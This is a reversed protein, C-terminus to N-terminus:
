ACEVLIRDAFTAGVNAIEPTEERGLKALAEILGADEPDAEFPIVNASCTSTGIIVPADTVTFAFFYTSEYFALEFSSQSVDFTKALRRVFTVELRQDVVKADFNTPWDLAIAEGAVSLHASGDFDAPFKSRIQVLKQRVPEDLGGAENLTLGHSSLIYLTEFADYRWTVELAELVNPESMRLDIGGDVFVHPHASAVQATM